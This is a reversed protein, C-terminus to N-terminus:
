VCRYMIVHVEVEDHIFKNNLLQELSMLLPVYYMEENKLKMKKSQRVFESGLVTSM